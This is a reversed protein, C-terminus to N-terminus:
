LSYELKLGVVYLDSAPQVFLGQPVGISTLAVVNSQSFRFSDRCGILACHQQFRYGAQAFVSVSKGPKLAPNQDFGIDDFHVNERTWVPYKIGGGFCWGKRAVNSEV